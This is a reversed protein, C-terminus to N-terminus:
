IQSVLGHLKSLIKQYSSQTPDAELILRIEFSNQHWFFPMSIELNQDVMEIVGSLDQWSDDQLYNLLNIDAPPHAVQAYAEPWAFSARETSALHLHYQTQNSSWPYLQTWISLAKAKEHSTALWTVDKLMTTPGADATTAKWQGPVDRGRWTKPPTPPDFHDQTLQNNIWQRLRRPPYRYAQAIAQLWPTLQAMADPSDSWLPMTWHITQTQKQHALWPTQKTQKPGPHLTWSDSTQPLDKVMTQWQTQTTIPVHYSQIVWIPDLCAPQHCHAQLDNLVVTADPAIAEILRQVFDQLARVNPLDMDQEFTLTQLTM